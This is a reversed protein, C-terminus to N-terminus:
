EKNNNKKNYQRFIQNGYVSAGALLIGQIIGTILSHWINEGVVICLYGCSLVVSICSLILPIHRSDIKSDKIFKGATILVPILVLLEPKIYTNFDM